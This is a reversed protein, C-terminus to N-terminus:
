NLESRVVRNHVQECTSLRIEPARLLGSCQLIEIRRIDARPWFAVDDAILVSDARGGFGSM